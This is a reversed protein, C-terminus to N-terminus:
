FIHAHIRYHEGLRFLIVNTQPVYDLNMNLQLLPIHVKSILPQLLIWQLCKNLKAAFNWCIGYSRTYITATVTQKSLWAIALTVIASGHGEIFLTRLCAHYAKYLIVGLIIEEKLHYALLDNWLLPLFQQFMEINKLKNNAVFYSNTRM